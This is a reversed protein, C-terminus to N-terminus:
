VRERERERDKERRGGERGDERWEERQGERRRKLNLRECVDKHPCILLGLNDDACHSHRCHVKSCHHMSECM